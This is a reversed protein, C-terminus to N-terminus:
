AAAANIDRPNVIQPAPTGAAINVMAKGIAESTTLQDKWFLRAVPYLPKAVVYMLRYWRTRSTVGHMPHIYGPRFAYGHFPLAFLANEAAGKVRAWMVRGRETSDTGQGTVYIFTFSPDAAFLRAAALPMDYSIHRYEDEKLGASSAGLCYFCANAGALEAAVATLDTLDAHEIERLKPDHKGTARRGVTVVEAVRPDLLCERLVGQGIMGTAGFVIVKM